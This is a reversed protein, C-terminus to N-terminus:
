IWLFSLRPIWLSQLSFTGKDESVKSRVCIFSLHLISWVIFKIFWPSSPWKSFWSTAFVPNMVSYVRWVKWWVWLKSANNFSSSLLTKRKNSHLKQSKAWICECLNWEIIIGSNRPESASISSWLSFIIPSESDRIMRDDLWKVKQSQGSECAIQSDPSKSPLRM